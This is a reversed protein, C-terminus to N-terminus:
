RDSSTERAKGEQKLRLPRLGDNLAQDYVTPDGQDEYNGRNDKGFRTQNEPKQAAQKGEFALIAEKDKLGHSHWTRLMRDYIMLNKANRLRVSRSLALEVIDFDFGLEENWKRILPENYEDLSIRLSKAVKQCFQYMDRFRDQHRSLQEFTRVGNKHWNDAISAAYGTHNLKNRDVLESFLTYVVDPHFRYDSFWRDILAYWRYSMAGQFYTDNIIRVTRERASVEGPLVESPKTEKKDAVYREVESVKLDIVETETDKQSVLRESELINLAKEVRTVTVGLRAALEKKDLKRGRGESQLLLLYVKLAHEDLLPMHDAIFLDPVSTDSLLLTRDDRKEM